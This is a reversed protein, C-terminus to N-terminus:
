RQPPSLRQDAEGSLIEDRLATWQLSHRIGEAIDYQPRWGLLREARDIRTYAGAV